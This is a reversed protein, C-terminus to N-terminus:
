KLLPNLKSHHKTLHVKDTWIKLLEEIFGMFCSFWFLPLQLFLISLSNFRGIDILWHSLFLFILCGFINLSIDKPKYQNKQSPILLNRFGDILGFSFTQTAGYGWVSFPVWAGHEPIALVGQILIFIWVATFVYRTIKKRKTHKKNWAKIKRNKQLLLWELDLDSCYGPSVYAKRGNQHQYIQQYTAKGETDTGDILMVVHWNGTKMFSM